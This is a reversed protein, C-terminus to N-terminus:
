GPAVPAHRYHYHYLDRTFGLREYLARAPLNDDVVQLCAAEAGMERGWDLLAGVTRVGMGRKRFRPPTAVSEIVLLRDHIAGYAISCVTGNQRISAFRKPLVITDLMRRYIALDDATLDGTEQRTAMWAEDPMETLLADVPAPHRRDTLDAVLTAVDQDLIYGRRHLAEDIDAAMDPLRFIAPRGFSAYLTEADAVIGAAERRDWRMPNVSNARRTSGGSFRLIWGHLFIQRPSPWANLCAEEVRWKLEIDSM